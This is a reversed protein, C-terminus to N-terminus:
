SPRPRNRAENPASALAPGASGKAYSSQVLPSLRECFSGLRKVLSDFYALGEELEGNKNLRQDFIALILGRGGEPLLVPFFRFEMRHLPMHRERSHNWRLFAETKEVQELLAPNGIFIRADQLFAVASEPLEAMTSVSEPVLSFSSPSYRYCSIIMGPMKHAFLDALEGWVQKRTAQPLIKDQFRELIELKWHTFRVEVKGTAQEERAQTAEKERARAFTVARDASARVSELYEMAEKNVGGFDFDSEDREDAQKSFRLTMGILLCSGFSLFLGLWYLFSSHGARSPDKPWESGALIGFEPLTTWAGLADRGELGFYRETFDTLKGVSLEQIAAAV